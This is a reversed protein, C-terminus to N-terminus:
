DTQLHARSILADFQGVVSDEDSDETLDVGVTTGLTGDAATAIGQVTFFRTRLPDMTGFAGGYLSRHIDESSDIFELARDHPAGTLCNSPILGALADVPSVERSLTGEFVTRDPTSGTASRMHMPAECLRRIQREIEEIVLRRVRPSSDADPSSALTSKLARGDISLLSDWSSVMYSSGEHTFFARVAQAEPRDLFIRLAEDEALPRQGHRVIHVHNLAESRLWHRADNLIRRLSREDPSLRLGMDETPRPAHPAASATRLELAELFADAKGQAESRSEGGLVLGATGESHDFIMAAAYLGLRCQSHRSFGRAPDLGRIARAGEFGIYGAIGGSFPLYPDCPMAAALGAFRSLAERPSDITTHGDVTIFAGAMSFTNSPLASVISFRGQSPHSRRADICFFGPMGALASAAREFSVGDLPLVMPM